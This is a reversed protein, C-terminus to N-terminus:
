QVTVLVRNSPLTAGGKADGFSLFELQQGSFFPPVTADHVWRCGPDFIGFAIPIYTPTGNISAVLLLAQGGSAGGDTTLELQFGVAPNTDNVSLLLRDPLRTLGSLGMVGPAGAIPDILTATAKAKGILWIEAENAGGGRAGGRGAYLTGDETFVLGDTYVGDIRGILRYTWPTTSVDFEM